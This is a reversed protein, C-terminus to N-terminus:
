IQKQKRAEEEEEREWTELLNQAILTVADVDLYKPYYFFM